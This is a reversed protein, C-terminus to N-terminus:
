KFNEQDIQFSDKIHSLVYLFQILKAEFPHLSKKRTFQLKHCTHGVLYTFEVLIENFLTEKLKISHIM